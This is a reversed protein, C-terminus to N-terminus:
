PLRGGEMWKSFLDLQEQSWYPGGVPMRPAFQETLSKFVKQANALQSMYAYDDLLVGMRKMHEVDVNRFLPRIDRAFSMQESM